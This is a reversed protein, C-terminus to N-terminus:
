LAENLVGVWMRWVVWWVHVVRGGDWMTVEQRGAARMICKLNYCSLIHMDLQLCAGWIARFWTTYRKYLCFTWWSYSYRYRNYNFTTTKNIVVPQQSPPERNSSGRRYYSLRSCSPPPPPLFAASLGLLLKWVLTLTTGGQGSRQQRIVYPHPSLSLHEWSPSRTARRALQCDSMTRQNGQGALPVAGNGRSGRVGGEM